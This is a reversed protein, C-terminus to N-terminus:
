RVNGYDINTLFVMTIDVVYCLGQLLVMILIEMAEHPRTIETTVSVIEKVKTQSLFRPSIRSKIQYIYYGLSKFPVHGRLGERNIQQSLTFSLVTNELQFIKIWKIQYGSLIIYGPLNATVDVSPLPPLWAPQLLFTAQHHRTSTYINLLLDRIM